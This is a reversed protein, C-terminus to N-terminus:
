FLYVLRSVQVVLYGGQLPIVIGWLTKHETFLLLGGALWSKLLGERGLLILGPTLILFISQDEKNEDDADFESLRWAQKHWTCDKLCGSVELLSVLLSFFLSLFCPLFSDAVQGRWIPPVSLLEMVRSDPGCWDHVCHGVMVRRKGLLFFFGFFVVCCDRQGDRCVGTSLM